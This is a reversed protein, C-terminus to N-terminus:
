SDNGCWLLWDKKQDKKHIIGKSWMRLEAARKTMSLSLEYLDKRWNGEENKVRVFQLFFSRNFVVVNAQNNVKTLTRM